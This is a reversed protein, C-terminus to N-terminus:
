LVVQLLLRQLKDELFWICRFQHKGVVLMKMKAWNMMEIQQKKIAYLMALKNGDEKLKM